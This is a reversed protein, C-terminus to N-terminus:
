HTPFGFIHICKKLLLLHGVYAHMLIEYSFDCAPAQARPRYGGGRGLYINDISEKPRKLM